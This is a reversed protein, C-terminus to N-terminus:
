GSRAPDVEASHKAVRPFYAPRRHALQRKVLAGPHDLREAERDHGALFFKVFEVILGARRALVAPDVDFAARAREKGERGLAAPLERVRVDQEIALKFAQRFVAREDALVDVSRQLAG